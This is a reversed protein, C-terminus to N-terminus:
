RPLAASTQLPSVVVAAAVVVERPASEGPAPTPPSTERGFATLAEVRYFDPIGSIESTPSPAGYPELLWQSNSAAM